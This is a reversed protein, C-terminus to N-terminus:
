TARFNLSITIREDDSTNKTVRHEHSSPFIIVDGTKVQPSTFREISVQFVDDLGSKIYESYERNYFEFNSDNV